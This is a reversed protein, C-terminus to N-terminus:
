FALGPSRGSRLRLYAGLLLMMINGFLALVLWNNGTIPLQPGVAIHQAIATVPAPGVPNVQSPPPINGGVPATPAEKTKEKEKECKCDIAVKSVNIPGNDITTSAYVDGTLINTDDGTNFQSTNDGTTYHEKLNNLVNAVNVVEINIEDNQELQVNNWSGFGNGIIQVSSSKNSSTPVKIYSLNIPGNKVNTKAKIDGTKIGTEGGTNYSATNNGTNAYTEINNIINAEQYVNISTNNSSQIDAENSSFAGNGSVNINNKTEQCCNNQEVVSQNMTNSVNTEQQVNGTVIEANGGTNGSATNGGTNTTNSVNNVVNATNTQEINSENNNSVVVENVSAAGNGSINIEEALVHPTAAIGM